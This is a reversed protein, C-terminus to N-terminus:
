KKRKSVVAGVASVAAGVGFVLGFSVVGTDPVETTAEDAVTEVAEDATEAAADDASTDAAVEKDSFVLTEFIDSNQWANALDENTHLTCNRKGDSCANVQLSFKVSGDATTYPIKYEVNYGIDTKLVKVEAGYNQDFTESVAYAQVNQGNNVFRLEISDKEYANANTDNLQSDEVQVFIYFADADYTAWASAKTGDAEGDSVAEMKMEQAATYVDDMQGDIVATGKAADWSADAKASATATTAFVMIVALALVLYKRLKM